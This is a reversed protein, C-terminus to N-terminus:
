RPPVGHVICDDIALPPEVSLFVLIAGSFYFWIMWIQTTTVEQTHGIRGELSAGSFIAQFVEEGKPIPLMAPSKARREFFSDLM